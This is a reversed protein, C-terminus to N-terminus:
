VIATEYPDEAVEGEVWETPPYTGEVPVNDKQGGLEGRGNLLHACVTHGRKVPSLMQWHLTLRLVDGAALSVWADPAAAVGALYYGLLRIADDLDEHVLCDM